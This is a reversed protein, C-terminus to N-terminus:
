GWVWSRVNWSLFSISGCHKKGSTHVFVRHKISVKSSYFLFADNSLYQHHFGKLKIYPGTPYQSIVFKCYIYSILIEASGRAQSTGNLRWLRNMQWLQVCSQISIIPTLVFPSWEQQAPPRNRVFYLEFNWNWVNIPKHSLAPHFLNCQTV